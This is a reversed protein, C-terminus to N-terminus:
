GGIARRIQAALDAIANPRGSSGNLIDALTVLGLVRTIRRWNDPLVGGHEVFGRLFPEELREPLNRLMTAVDGLPSGAHAFDWDIVAAVTWGADGPRVLINAPRYDSHVLSRADRITELAPASEVAFAWARRALGGGLLEGATGRLLCNELHALYGEVMGGEFPHAVTLDRGFFGARPFSFASLGALAAGLEYAVTAADADRRLAADSPEADVWASLNYAMGGPGGTASGFFVEPMPVAGGLLRWLHVERESADPDRQCLRLAVAGTFGEVEVRYVTNGFGGEVPAARVARAGPFAPQLLGSIADLGLPVIANRREWTDYAAM